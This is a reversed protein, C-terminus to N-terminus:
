MELIEKELSAKTELEEATYLTFGETLVDFFPQASEDDFDGPSVEMIPFPGDPRIVEADVIVHFAETNGYFEMRIRSSSDSEPLNAPPPYSEGEPALTVHITEPSAKAKEILADYDKPTVVETEPTPQCACLIFLSLLFFATARKM